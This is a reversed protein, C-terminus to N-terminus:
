RYLYVAGAGMAADDPTSGVGTGSSSELSAGIALTRGDSSMAVAGGFHDGAGTNFAKIYHLEEWATGRRIFAYAAGSGLAGESPIADIGTGNGDEFIGGVVLYDGTGDLALAWGFQDIEANSAKLFAQQAWISGDFQFIYAAGTEPARRNPTPNIGTAETAEGDAGVAVTQADSNIALSSGFRDNLGGSSARILGLTSWAATSYLHVAGRGNEEPAGVAAIFGDPTLATATGFLAGPMAGAPAKVFASFRWRRMELQYEYVAGSDIAGENSPPNLRSGSTDEGPAGVVLREGTGDLAVASGFRDGAGTNHAKIYAEYTWTAGSRTYLYVAGSNSAAEDGAPDVLVGSGDEQPAGVALTNGDASLSVSRGFEDFPSTNSSKIFAQFVWTAGSRAYVYVAGASPDSNSSAPNVRTGSSDEYIAGVALTNGDGSLAVSTGFEDESGTNQAKIFHDFTLLGPIPRADPTSVDADLSADVALADLSADVAFADLAADVALADIDTNPADVGADNPTDAATVGYNM